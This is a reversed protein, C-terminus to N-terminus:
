GSEDSAWDSFADVRSRQGASIGDPREWGNRLRSGPIRGGLGPNCDLGCASCSRWPEQARLGLAPTAARGNDRPRRRNMAWTWPGPGPIARISTDVGIFDQSGAITRTRPPIIWARPSTSRGESTTNMYLPEARVYRSYPAVTSAHPPLGVGFDSASAAPTVHNPLTPM